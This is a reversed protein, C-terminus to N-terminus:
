RFLHSFRVVLAVIFRQAPRELVAGLKRVIPHNALEILAAHALDVEGLVLLQM